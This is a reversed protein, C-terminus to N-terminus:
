TGPATAFDEPRCRQAARLKYALDRLATRLGEELVPHYFPMSLAQEVTMRSQVAWALLHALHEMGPGFMEAGNRERFDRPLLCLLMRFLRRGM